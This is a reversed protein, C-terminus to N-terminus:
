QDGILGERGERLSSSWEFAQEWEVIVDNGPLKLIMFM